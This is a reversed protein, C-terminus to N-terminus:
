TVPLDIGSVERGDVRETERSQREAVMAVQRISDLGAVAKLHHQQGAPASAPPM